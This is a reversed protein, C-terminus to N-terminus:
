SPNVSYGRHFRLTPVSLNVPESPLGVYPIIKVGGPFYIEDSYIEHGTLKYQINTIIYGRTHMYRVQSLFCSCCFGELLNNWVRIHDNCVRWAFVLSRSSYNIVDCATWLVSYFLKERNVYLWTPVFWHIKLVWNCVVHEERAFHIQNSYHQPLNTEIFRIRYKDKSISFVLM